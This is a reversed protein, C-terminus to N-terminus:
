CQPLRINSKLKRDSTFIGWETEWTNNKEYFVKKWPEDFAEFYYWDYKNQSNAKCVWSDIFYQFNTSNAVAEHFKGGKFPWGIETIVIKTKQQKNLPEIQYKIFDFSWKVAKSVNVGGFFPHINAGIIDCEKLLDESVLSGIESTGVPLDIYGIQKLFMKMQKIYNTLEHTKKDERFLVENGILISDFYKRPYKTLIKRALELQINNVTDNSSIWVGMMLTMNLNMSKIADLIYDSQNCQMGYNRVKNTVKSLIAIDVKVDELKSGCKPELCEQPSYSIGHFKSLMDLDSFNSNAALLFTDNNEVTPYNFVKIYVENLQELFSSREEPNLNNFYRLVIGKTGYSLIGVTIAMAVICLMSFGLLVIFPFRSYCYSRKAGIEDPINNSKGSLEPELEAQIIDSGGIIASHEKFLSNKKRISVGRLPDLISSGTLNGSELQNASGVLEKNDDSFVEDLAMVTPSMLGSGDSLPSIALIKQVRVADESRIDFQPSNCDNEPPRHVITPYQSENDASSLLLTGNFLSEPQASDEQRFFRGFRTKFKEPFAAKSIEEVDHNYKLGPIFSSSKARTLKTVPVASLKRKNNHGEQATLRTVPDTVSRQIDRYRSAMLNLPQM